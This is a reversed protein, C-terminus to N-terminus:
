DKSYLRMLSAKIFKETKIDSNVGCTKAIDLMYNTEQSIEHNYQAKDLSKLYRDIVYDELFM